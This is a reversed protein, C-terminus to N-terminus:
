TPVDMPYWLLSKKKHFCFFSFDKSLYRYRLWHITHRQGPIYELYSRSYTSAISTLCFLVMLIRPSGHSLNHLASINILFSFPTNILPQWQFMFNIALEKLTNFFHSHWTLSSLFSTLQFTIENNRFHRMQSQFERIM